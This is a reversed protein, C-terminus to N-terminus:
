LHVLQQQDKKVWCVVEIDTKKEKPDFFLKLKKVSGVDVGAFRVPAGLKVGDVFNFIFRVKYGSTWTKFGGISLVFITLLILGLFVFIGVKFEMKTKGFIM